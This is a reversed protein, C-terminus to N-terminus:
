FLSWDADRSTWYWGAALIMPLTVHVTLWPMKEGAVSYAILSSVSWFLLLFITPPTEPLDVKEIVESPQDLLEIQEDTDIETVERKKPRLALFFAGIAGLAPLFEYIPVQILGYYYWPQSGRNVGQQELWYGLSGVLGTVFGFGNTFISTYFVTFISYFLANALWLCPELWVRLSPLVAFIAVFVADM